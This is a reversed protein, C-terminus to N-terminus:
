WEAISGDDHRWVPNHWDVDDSDRIREEDISIGLGPGDPIQLFGDVPELIDDSELYDPVDASENYHIGLSSEQIMATQSVADIQLAAALSIPGLPCHPAVAVDYAEAMSAIKTVETIGGAHSPDPQIVDVANQELIPKFDWRSFLREGTAIPVTTMTTIKPLADNHEPLVPEEFFMPDYPELEKALRPFMSKAVRGHFDVGIRIKSGVADRVAALREGVQNIKHPTEIREFEPTANMKLGTVGHDILTAANEVVDSPRDGGVWRYYRIKDRVSGGLLEHVSAGYHKGKIDWLAQDIGAIASMVVPGGRYFGGRYMTQWHKQIQLPNKGVLYTDLLERTAAILTQARGELTPEGWGVTGEDTKLKLFVWRPPVSYLEYDSITPCKKM